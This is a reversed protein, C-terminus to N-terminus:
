KLEGNNEQCKRAQDRMFKYDTMVSYIPSDNPLLNLDQRMREQQAGSWSMVEQCTLMPLREACGTLIFAAFAAIFLAKM